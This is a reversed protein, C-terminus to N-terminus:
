GGGLLRGGRRTVGTLSGQQKLSGNGLYMSQMPFSNFCFAQLCGIATLLALRGRQPGQM